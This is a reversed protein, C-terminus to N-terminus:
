FSICFTCRSHSLKCALIWFTKDTPGGRLKTKTSSSHSSGFVSFATMAPGGTYRWKSPSECAPQQHRPKTAKRNKLHDPGTSNLFRVAKNNKM